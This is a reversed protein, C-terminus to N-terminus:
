YGEPCSSMSLVGEWRTHPSDSAWDNLKFRERGVLGEPNGLMDELGQLRRAGELLVHWAM